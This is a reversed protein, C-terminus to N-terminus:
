PSTLEVNTCLILSCTQLCAAGAADHRMVSVWVFIGVSGGSGWLHKSLAGSASAGAAVDVLSMLPEQLADLWAEPCCDVVETLADASAEFAQAHLGCGLPNHVLVTTCAHM